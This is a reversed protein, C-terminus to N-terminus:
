LNQLDVLFPSNKHVFLDSKQIKGSRLVYGKSELIQRFEDRSPCDRPKCFGNMNEVMFIDVTVQDFDIHRLVKPEAGEVDLSFLTVRGGDFLDLIIPTLPGCPVEVPAKGKYADANVTDVQAANTFIADIFGVTANQEAQETSCSAALSVRHANPRNQVLRPFMAPNAEVLLGDWGLCVDFFRSNSEQRGDFAGIELYTFSETRNKNKFFYEYLNKDENLRSRVKMSQNFFKQFDPGAGCEDEEEPGDTKTLTTTTTTFTTVSNRSTTSEQPAHYKYLQRYYPSFFSKEQKPKIDSTTIPTLNQETVNLGGSGSSSSNHDNVTLITGGQYLSRDNVTLITGVELLSRQQSRFFLIGIVVVLLFSKLSLRPKHNNNNNNNNRSTTKKM